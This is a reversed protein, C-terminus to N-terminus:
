EWPDLGLEWYPRGGDKGIARVIKRIAAKRSHGYRRYLLMLLHLNESTVGPLKNFATYLSERARAIQKQKRPWSLGGVEDFAGIFQGKPRRYLSTLKDEQPPGADGHVRIGFGPSERFFPSDKALWFATSTYADITDPLGSLFGVTERVDAETESPLGSIFFVHNWIGQEHSLRLCDAMRQKTVDKRIHKLLRASGTEAGFFLNVAGARRMKALLAADLARFNACDSWLLGLKHRIMGDCLADAFKYTNNFNPNLFRVGTVGLEKLRHLNEVIEAVGPARPAARGSGVCFACRGACAADFAYMVLLEKRGSCDKKLRRM